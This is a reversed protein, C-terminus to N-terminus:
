GRKTLERVPLSIQFSTEYEGNGIEDILSIKGGMNEVTEKVFALGIGNSALGSENFKTTFGPEFILKKSKESIGSGTDRVEILLQEGAKKAYVLIKGTSQIAEVANSVLNNLLSLLIVAHYDPHSGETEVGYQITKGVMEGYRRNATISVYLIEKIDMFDKLNEHDMLRSLGAYIRQSDKKIEHMRGAIGLARGAASEQSAEKLSRYLAYCEATLQEANRMSKNLQIREVFLSSVMMLIEESRKRQQEESLRTERIIFINYFGLVFFSRIIAIGVIMTFSKPTLPTHSFISRFFLEALTALIEAGVGFLGIYIPNSHYKKVKFIHFLIAFAFYYFFVPFHMKLADDLLFLGPELTELGIRFAVVSIGTVFGAPIPRSQRFWLLIFFFSPTGLSVRLDGLFPFFKLEGAIPVVIAMLIYILLKDRTKRM